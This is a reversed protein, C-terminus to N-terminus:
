IKGRLAVYRVAAWREKPIDIDIM